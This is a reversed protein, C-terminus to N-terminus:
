STPKAQGSILIYTNSSYSDGTLDTFIIPNLLDFQM